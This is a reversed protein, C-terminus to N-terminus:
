RLRSPSARFDRGRVLRTPYSCGRPSLGPVTVAILTTGLLGEQNAPFLIVRLWNESKRSRSWSSYSLKAIWTCQMTLHLIDTMDADSVCVGRELLMEIIKTHSKALDYSSRALGDRTKVLGHRFYVFGAAGAAYYLPRLGDQDPTSANVGNALLLQVLEEDGIHAAFQLPTSGESGM